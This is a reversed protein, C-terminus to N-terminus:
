ALCENNTDNRGIPPKITSIEGNSSVVEPMLDDDIPICDKHYRQLVPGRSPLKYPHTCKYYDVCEAPSAWVGDPDYM